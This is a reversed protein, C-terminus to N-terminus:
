AKRSNNKRLKIWKSFSQPTKICNNVIGLVCVHLCVYLFCFCFSLTNLLSVPPAQKNEICEFNCWSTWICNWKKFFVFFCRMEGKLTGRSKIIQDGWAVFTFTGNMTEGEVYTEGVGKSLHIQSISLSSAIYNDNLLQVLVKRSKKEPMFQNWTQMLKWHALGAMGQICLSLELHMFQIQEANEWTASLTVAIEMHPKSLGQWLGM